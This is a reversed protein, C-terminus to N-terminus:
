RYFFSHKEFTRCSRVREVGPFCVWESAADMSIEDRLCGCVQKLKKENADLKTAYEKAADRKAMSRLEAAEEREEALKKLQSRICIYIYM